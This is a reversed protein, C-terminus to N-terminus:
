STHRSIQMWFWRPRNIHPFSQFSCLTPLDSSQAWTSTKWEKSAQDEAVLRRKLSQIELRQGRLQYELKILKDQLAHKQTQLDQITEKFKMGGKTKSLIDRLEERGTAADQLKSESEQLEQLIKRYDAAKKTIKGDWDQREQEHTVQIKRM